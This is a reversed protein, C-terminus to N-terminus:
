ECLRTDRWILNSKWEVENPMSTIHNNYVWSITLSGAAMLHTSADHQRTLPSVSQWSEANCMETERAWNHKHESTHKCIFITPDCLMIYLLCVSWRLVCLFQVVKVYIIQRWQICVEIKNQPLAFYNVSNASTNHEFVSCFYKTSRIGKEM